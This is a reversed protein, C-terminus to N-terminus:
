TEGKQWCQFKAVAQRVHNWHYPSSPSLHVTKFHQGCDTPCWCVYYRKDRTVRWGHDHFEKLLDEGEKKPHKTWYGM